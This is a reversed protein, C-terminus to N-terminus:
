LKGIAELGEPLIKYMAKHHGKAPDVRIMNKDELVSLTAKYNPIKRREMEAHFESMESGHDSIKGPEALLWLITKEAVTVKEM